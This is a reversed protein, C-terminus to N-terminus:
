KEFEWTVKKMRIAMEKFWDFIERRNNENRAKIDAKRRVIIRCDKGAERWDLSCGFEREFEKKNKEINYFFQKDGPIYLDVWITNKTKAYGVNISYPRGIVGLTYWCQPQPKRKSFEKDFHPDKYAYNSFALWFEYQDKQSESWGEYEKVDKAWDNPKEVVNFHPAISSNDIQWLEIEVLFFGIDNTQQNLWEIAKRHEERAKKVLWIVIKADKGSAYTIIQGLHSHNTEELQNEIIIKRSTGSETAVMDVSFNGVKGELENLTIDVNITDGLLKLNEEEALWKSFNRPENKWISRLDHIKTIKGLKPINNNELNNM